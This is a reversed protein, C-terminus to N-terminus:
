GGALVSRYFGVYRDVMKKLSYRDVITKRSAASFGTRMEGSGVLQDLAQFGAEVDQYSVLLGAERDDVVEPVGGVRTAIPAIGMAMAEMLARPMGEERSPLFFLDSLKLVERVDDMAGLFTVMDQLGREKVQQKLLQEDVGAGVWAFHVDLGAKFVRGVVDLLYAYGKHVRLNAVTTCLLGPPLGLGARTQHTVFDPTFRDVDIGNPICVLKSQPTRERRNRVACVQKSNGIFHDVRWSTLRDPVVHYWRRWSDIGRLGTILVTRGRIAPLLRSVLSTRLGYTNVIDFRERRIYRNLERVGALCIRRSGADIVCYPLGMKEAIPQLEGGGSWLNVLRVDIGREVLGPVLSLLFTETGGIGPNSILQLIKM